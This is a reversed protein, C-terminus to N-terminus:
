SAAAFLRTLCAALAPYAHRFIASPMDNSFQDATLLEQRQLTSNELRSARRLRKMTVKEWSLLSENPTKKADRIKEEKCVCRTGDHGERGVGPGEALVDGPGRLIETLRALLNALPNVVKPRSKSPAIGSPCGGNEAVELRGVGRRQAVESKGPQVQGLLAELCTLVGSRGRRSLQENPKPRRRGRHRKHGDDSEDDDDDPMISSQM